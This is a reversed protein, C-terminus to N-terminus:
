EGGAVNHAAQALIGVLEYRLLPPGFQEAHVGEDVSVFVARVPHRAGVRIQDVIEQLRDAIANCDPAICFNPLLQVVNSM